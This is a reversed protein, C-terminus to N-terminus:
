DLLIEPGVDRPPVQLVLAFAGGIDTYFIHEGGNVSITAADRPHIRIPHGSVPDKAIRTINSLQGRITITSSSSSSEKQQQQQQQAVPTESKTEPKSNSSSAKQQQQQQQKNKGGETPIEIEESTSKSKSSAKKAEVSMMILCLTMVMFTAFLTVCLSTRM